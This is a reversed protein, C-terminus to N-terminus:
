LLVEFLYRVLGVLYASVVGLTIVTGALKFTNAGLGLIFGEPRYEMASSVMSNAFGTIPIVTGAKGIQGLRDYVGIASLIGALLVMTGVMLARATNTELNFVSTYLTLILQGLLCVLGGMIFSALFNKTIQKYDREVKLLEQYKEKKIHM